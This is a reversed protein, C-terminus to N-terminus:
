NCEKEYEWNKPKINVWRWRHLWKEAGWSNKYHIM